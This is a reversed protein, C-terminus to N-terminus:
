TDIIIAASITIIFIQASEESQPKHRALIKLTTSKFIKKQLKLIDSLDMGQINLAEPRPEIIKYLFSQM